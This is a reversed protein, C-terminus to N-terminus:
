QQAAEDNKPKQEDGNECDENRDKAVILLIATNMLVIMMM